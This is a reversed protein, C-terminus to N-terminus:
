QEIRRGNNCQRCLPRFLPHRLVGLTRISEFMTADMVTRVNTFRMFM